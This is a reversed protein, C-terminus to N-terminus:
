PMDGVDLMIILLGAFAMIALVVAIGAFAATSAILDYAHCVDAMAAFCCCGLIAVICYVMMHKVSSKM